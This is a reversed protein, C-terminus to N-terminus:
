NLWCCNTIDFIKKNQKSYYKLISFDEMNKNSKEELKNLLDTIRKEYFIEFIHM